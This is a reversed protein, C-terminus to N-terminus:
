IRGDQNSGNDEAKTKNRLDVTMKKKKMKRLIRGLVTRRILIMTTLPVMRRRLVITRRQVTTRGQVTTRRQVKKRTLMAVRAPVLLVTLLVKLLVTLLVTPLVTLLVTPLVTLLFKLLVLIMLLDPMERQVMMRKLVKTRILVAMRELGHVRRQYWGM